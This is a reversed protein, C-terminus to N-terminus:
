FDFSTKALDTLHLSVLDHHTTNHTGLNERQKTTNMPFKFTCSLQYQSEAFAYHLCRGWIKEDERAESIRFTFLSM